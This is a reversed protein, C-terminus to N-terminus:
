GAGRLDGEAGVQIALALVEEQRDAWSWFPVRLVASMDGSRIDAYVRRSQEILDDEFLAML